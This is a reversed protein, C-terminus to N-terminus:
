IIHKAALIGALKDTTDKGTGELMMGVGKQKPTFSTLINTPSGQLGITSKDILPHDKLMEYNMVILPKDFCEETGIVSMYRPENLEKICTILCPTNVKVTMYGDELMRRIILTNGEKVIKGAYSVQPIHLKEAIQSGVQATDGDIAQRGALIIDEEEVGHTDLAAAIIQSTAYTDSGGFERATILVGEDVGMALLERLMDEASPPGMTVIEYNPTLIKLSIDFNQNAKYPRDDVFQNFGFTYRGNFKPYRYKKEDYLGDFILEAVKGIVESIEVNQSEIERNIEQEEDTLFVYIEGNKQVLTQRVLKKLAEEVKDKLAIRDDDIDSVMLSTINEVNAVVEKVYKIMFLTKLVNVEFCDDLREPNLYENDLARIIVGKHSHDLFQELADYFMNFPVITGESHEMVKMASEKFLALMSREGEALHKGSAGHTRISTLVSALLNFQYPVFPYVAAFNKRDSYLKKEIGDNFIILNKIITDKEDYLLGLTQNGSETKQLIRKRIVEDVNASSLSLRTDFRGQIKSFDNGKTKTISDIDQQSTVVVWAKGKCASGLDETVTQLNLMLKSDDGIYQGIEDVLFVVHHNNGKKKIYDNVMKAFTSVDINYVGTSSECWNKAAEMSMYDIKVLSQCVHDQIFRFQHRSEAWEKGRIEFFATKFEEYKGEDVLHRELDALFPNAGYYGLHQNFVKLFVSLIAEKNNQTDGMGSKSDINFLIVDSSVGAALKMDALVFEDKIKKDEIFYEIAAKGDVMRNDLIYSLIKLFHSKGSGFFGSIWVGTDATPRDFSDSYYNFFSIFHKKLERTIVYESLEQEIISETDQDVKIVGNIERNIDDYFMNQIRM